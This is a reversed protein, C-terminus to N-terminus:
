LKHYPFVFFMLASTTSTSFVTSNEVKIDRPRTSINAIITRKADTGFLIMRGTFMAILIRDTNTPTRILKLFACFPSRLPAIEPSNYMSNVNRIKEARVPKLSTFNLQISRTVKGIAPAIEPISATFTLARM